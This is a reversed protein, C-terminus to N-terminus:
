QRQRAPVFDWEAEALLKEGAGRAAQAFAVQSSMVEDWEIEVLTISVGLAPYDTGLVVDLVGSRVAALILPFYTDTVVSPRQATSQFAFEAAPECRLKVAAFNSPHGWQPGRYTFDVLTPARLRRRGGSLKEAIWNEITTREV